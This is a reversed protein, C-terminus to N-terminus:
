KKRGAIAPGHSFSGDAGQLFLFIHWLFIHFKTPTKFSKNFRPILYSLFGVVKEVKSNSIPYDDRMSYRDKIWTITDRFRM